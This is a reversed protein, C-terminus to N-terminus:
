ASRSGPKPPGTRSHSSATPASPATGTRTSSARCCRRARSTWRQRGAPVPVDARRGVAKIRNGEVVVVGDEIVEDGGGRMTVVRGGVFALTGSPIDSLPRSGSRSGRRRRRPCSKPRAPWSRSPRRCARTFLEPGLAWHLSRSDGSWHLFEGAEKSARAVPLSKAKPGIEIRKGTRVFPTVFANYRERFALWKEDPSIAFETANESVYHERLDAGDLASSVLVRKEEERQERSAETEEIKTFYVRDGGAGFQPAFGERSVLSSRGGGAPVSYLGTESSWDPTLLRDGSDKRYVIRAGDPSFAPERYVGPEGTVVRGEGGRAPAVRVTGAKEDNWTTYALFRGDRSFSPYM